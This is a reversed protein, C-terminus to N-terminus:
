GEEPEPDPEDIIPVLVTIEIDWAPNNSNPLTGRTATVGNFSNIRTFTDVVFPIAEDVADENAETDASTPFLVFVHVTAQLIGLSPGQGITQWDVMAVPQTLTNPETTFPAVDWTEPAYARVAEEVAQRVNM